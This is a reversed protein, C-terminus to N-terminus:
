IEEEECVKEPKSKGSGQSSFISFLNTSPLQAPKQSSFPEIKSEGNRLM